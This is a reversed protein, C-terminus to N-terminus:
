PVRGHQHGLPVGVKPGLKEGLPIEPVHVDVEGRPISYDGQDRSPVSFTCIAVGHSRDSRQPLVGQGYGGSIMLM